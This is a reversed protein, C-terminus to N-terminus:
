TGSPSGIAPVVQSLHELELPAPPIRRERDSTPRFFSTSTRCPWRGLGDEHTSSFSDQFSAVEMACDGAALLIESAAMSWQFFGGIFLSTSAPVLMAISSSLMM